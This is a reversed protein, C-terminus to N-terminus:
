AQPGPPTPGMLLFRIVAIAAAINLLNDLRSLYHQTISFNRGTIISKEVWLDLIATIFFKALLVALLEAQIDSFRLLLLYTFPLIAYFLINLRSLRPVGGEAIVALRFEEAKALLSAFSSTLQHLNLGAYLVTIVASLKSFFLVAEL